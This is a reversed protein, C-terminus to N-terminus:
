TAVLSAPTLLHGVSDTNVEGRGKRGGGRKDTALKRTSKGAYLKGVQMIIALQQLQIEIYNYDYKIIGISPFNQTTYLIM